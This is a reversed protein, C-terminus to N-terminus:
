RKQANWDAGGSGSGANEIKNKVETALASYPISGDKIKDGKVLTSM